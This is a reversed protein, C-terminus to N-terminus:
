VRALGHDVCYSRAVPCICPTQLELSSVSTRVQHSTGNLSAESACRTPSLLPCGRRAAAAYCATMTSSHQWDLPRDLVPWWCMVRATRRCPENLGLPPRQERWFSDSILASGFFAERLVSFCDQRQGDLLGEARSGDQGTFACKRTAHTTKSM